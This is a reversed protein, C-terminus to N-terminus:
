KYDKGRQTMFYLSFTFDDTLRLLKIVLRQPKETVRIKLWVNDMMSWCRLDESKGIEVGDLWAQYPGTRGIQLAVEEGLGDGNASTTSANGRITRVLYYVGQGQFGGLDQATLYDQGTQLPMPAEEPIDERLLRTEDLYPHEARVYHNYCDGTLNVTFPGGVHKANNYPCEANKTTDWMDWYPGYVQWQRAGGLGIELSTTKVHSGSLGSKAGVEPQETLFSTIRAFHGMVEDTALDQQWEVTLLNKDPIWKDGYEDARSVRVVFSTDSQPPLQAASGQYARDADRAQLNSGKGGKANLVSFSLGSNLPAHLMLTGSQSEPFPNRVTVRIDTSGRAWLVPQGPHQENGLHEAEITTKPEPQPRVEITPADTFTVASNRGALSMELGIRCTDAAFDALPTDKHKVAIGCLLTPGLMAIWDQPLAATGVLTGLLAGATSATCDTDFGFNACLQMTRKMDLGGQFLALLTLAHNAVADNANRSGFERVVARWAQRPEPFQQALHRVRHVARAIISEKPIVSLGAKLADEFDGGVVASAATAAIFQEAQISIEGHDLQGDMRALEAAFAPNGAAVYGWIEARIPCGEGSAFFTNNWTGSLPPQIGRQINNLFVGYECFFYWCRDQWFDALDRSTLWLGREQMAELWLVQLDLDDNAALKDPWLKDLPLDKLEKQCELPAGIVGGFSKGIWGALVKDQYTAYPVSPVKM